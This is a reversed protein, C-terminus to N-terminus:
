SNRRGVTFWSDKPRTYCNEAGNAQIFPMSQMVFRLVNKATRQLEGLTIGDPKGYSKLLTKDPKPKGVPKGGPMLVDVQARVRYANDRLRPFNPDKCSRMWWDTMVNGTYEWEGRLVTTCLDYNYHSWVGNIKNYSTMLNYPNAEKVCIEFGRLYIERLARQSVMSNNHTRNTEQNNCAFHKPCASGGQSQIGRVVAAAMRGTLLPDESFYEFNRGCLPDRHINMGPALLIHSGKMRMEEGMKRYLAEVLEPSWTCALLTGCPLLSAAAHLRIGSPGDTTTVPVIGKERLSELVGGLAGANGKAGLPSNMKYDGRSIAELEELSLQAIFDEMRVRGQKVDLLTYGQDGTIPVGEPLAHLIRERLTDEAAPVQEKAAAWAGDVGAAPRLRAFTDAARLPMISTLQQTVVTQPVSHTYVCAASHADTGLYVPYAGAELVFCYPHGAAGSDDFSAMQSIPFAIRLTQCDGPALLDTRAFAALAKAPKGLAGQPAGYYVQIVERGAYQDGTNQVCVELAIETKDAGASVLTVAFTTYSLGFGFPYLAKEPAFTEFYRYGVYIDETYQNYAKNGFHAASPYDTYARALTDTLKGSPTVRGCLVDAVAHGSEMGGQWAYLVAGLKDGYREVWSLDMCNGSDIVVATRTFQATVLDLMRQEEQTLYYSGAELTNERDEGAARGIVVVAADTRQAAAEVLATTLEMEAHYRPWHGWYGHDPPNERCWQEYRGALTEDVQVRPEDRLGALLGVTYPANVDGGSGYGVTFYDIQVRGFVAIRSHEALPLVGDNKLLVAGQAATERILEVMGDPLDAPEQAGVREEQAMLGSIVRSIFKQVGSRLKKKQPM